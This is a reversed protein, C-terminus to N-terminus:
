ALDIMAKIPAEMQDMTREVLDAGAIAASSSLSHRARRSPRRATGDLIGAGSPFEFNRPPDASIRRTSPSLDVIFGL